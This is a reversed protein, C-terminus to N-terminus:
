ILKKRIGRAYMTAIMPRDLANLELLALEGVALLHPGCRRFDSSCARSCPTRPGAEFTALAKPAPRIDPSAPYLVPPPGPPTLCSPDM